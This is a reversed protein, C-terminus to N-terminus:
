NPKPAEETKDEDDYGFEAMIANLYEPDQIARMVDDNRGQALLKAFVSTIYKREEKRGEQKLDNRYEKLAALM